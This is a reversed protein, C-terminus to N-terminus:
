PNGNAIRIVTNWNRTTASVGFAKEIFANPFGYFGNRKRRSVIFADNSSTAFVELGEKDDRLPLRPTRTPTGALFAVYLKVDSERAFRKFRDAAVLAALDDKTRIFVGPDKGILPELHQCIRRALAARGSAPAEFVINGSQIVTRVNTCGGAAFADRLDTMKVVAHGGVNIARLFAIYVV